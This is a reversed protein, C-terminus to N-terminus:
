GAAAKRFPNLATVQGALAGAKEIIRGPLGAAVADRRKEGFGDRGGGGVLHHLESVLDRLRDSETDLERSSSASEEASAATQQTVRDMEGVARNIQDVGNAQERSGAALDHVLRDVEETNKAVASFDANTIEVLEGGTRVRGVTDDILGATRRAAEASRLALNRVEEAVVAFGSGAAGARAAEVAANLALLNTQFAIEDITKVIKRTEDSATTIGEISRRLEAMSRDAKEVMRRTAEMLETARGAHEANRRAASAMEELSAATEQISAAQETAGEALSQSAQSIQHSASAVQEAGGSMGRIARALPRTISRTILVALLLGVAIAALTGGFALAAAFRARAGMSEDQNRRAADCLEQIAAAADVMKSEAEQQRATLRACDALSQRYSGVAQLVAEMRGASGEDTVTEKLDSAATEIGDISEMLRGIGAEDGTRVAQSEIQRAQGLRRIIDEAAGSRLLSDEIIDAADDQAAALLDHQDVRLFRVAQVAEMGKAEATNLRETSPFSLYAQFAEVHERYATEIADAQAIGSPEKELRYKLSDVLDFISENGTEWRRLQADFFQHTLGVRIARNELIAQLLANVENAIEIKEAVTETANEMAEMLIQKQGAGVARAKEQASEAAETMRGLREERERALSVFSRFATEYGEASSLLATMFERDDGDTSRAGFARAREKLDGLTALVSEAFQPRGLRAFDKEMVRADLTAVALANVEALSGAERFVTKQTYFGIGAVVALLALVVAFGALIKRGLTWAVLGKM